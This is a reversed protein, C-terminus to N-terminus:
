AQCLLVLETSVELQRGPGFDSESRNPISMPRRPNRTRQPELRAITDSGIQYICRLLQIRQTPTTPTNLAEGFTVIGARHSLQAQPRAPTLAFLFAGIQQNNEQQPGVTGVPRRKGHSPM